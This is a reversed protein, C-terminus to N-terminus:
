QNGYVLSKINPMKQKPWNLKSTSKYETLTKKNLFREEIGDGCANALDSLTKVQFFLRWNKFVQTKSKPVECQGTDMIVMDNDGKIQPLWIDKIIIKTNTEMLFERVQTNLLGIAPFTNSIAGLSWYQNKSTNANIHDM